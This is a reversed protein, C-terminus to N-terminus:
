RVVRGIVFKEDELAKCALWTARERMYSFAAESFYATHPNIIIRGSSVKSLMMLKNVITPPEDAVTDIGLGSLHGKEFADALLSDNKVLGGRATNILISGKKMQSIFSGDVIGSTEQNLPLHLSVVDCSRAFEVLSACRVLRLSKEIGDKVFPDFFIVQFGISKLRMAVATGIRGLGLIGVTTESSRRALKSTKEQWIGTPSPDSWVTMAACHYASINRTLNLVFGVTTDAVEEVGYDVVHHVRIGLKRCLNLDITDLGIGYRVIVKCNPFESFFKEGIHEHWVLAALIENKKSKLRTIESRLFVSVGFEGAIATELSRETMYDTILIM